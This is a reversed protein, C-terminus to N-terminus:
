NGSNFNFFQFTGEAFFPVDSPITVATEEPSDLNCQNIKEKKPEEGDKHSSRSYIASVTEPDVTCIDSCQESCDTSFPERTSCANADTMPHRPHKDKWRRLRYFIAVITVILIFGSFKYIFTNSGQQKQHREQPSERKKRPKESSKIVAHVVSSGVGAYHKSSTAVVVMPYIHSTVPVDLTINKTETLSSQRSTVSPSTALSTFTSTVSDPQVPVCHIDTGEPVTSGCQVSPTQGKICPPCPFCSLCEASQPDVIKISKPDACDEKICLPTVRVSVQM